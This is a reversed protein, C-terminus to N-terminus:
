VDYDSKEQNFIYICTVIIHYLIHIVIHVKLSTGLLIDSMQCIKVIHRVKKKPM